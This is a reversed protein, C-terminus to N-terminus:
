PASVHRAVLRRVFAEADERTEVDGDLRADRLAGLIDRYVPGPTVGLEKLYNGFSRGWRTDQRALHRLRAFFTAARSAAPDNALLALVVREDLGGLIPVIISLHPAHAISDRERWLHVLRRIRQHMRGVSLDVLLREVAADDQRCVFFAWIPWALPAVRRLREAVWDDWILVPSTARLLGFADFAAFCAVPDPERLGLVLEHQKRDSSITRLAGGAVAAHLLSTTHPEVVFGFRAAYRLVRYLRTPDDRFSADHLIRIIGARLDALGGTPDRLDGFGQPTIPLAMANITLDRRHLDDDIRAPFAVLPLAGPHPYTETRATAFDVSDSTGSDTDAIRVTATGFDTTKAVEAHPITAFRQAVRRADTTTVLDIDHLLAGGRLLDRVPGGVLFAAGGEAEASAAAHLMLARQTAELAGWLRASDPQQALVIM